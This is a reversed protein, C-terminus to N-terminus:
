VSVVVGNTTGAMEQLYLRGYKNSFEKPFFFYFENQKTKKAPIKIISVSHFFRQLQSCGIDAQKDRGKGKHHEVVIATTVAPSPNRIGAGNNLL